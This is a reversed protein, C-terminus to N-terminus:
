VGVDNAHVVVDQRLLSLKRRRDELNNGATMHRAKQMNFDYVLRIANDKDRFM